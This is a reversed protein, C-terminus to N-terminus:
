EYLYSIHIYQIEQPLMRTEFNLVNGSVECVRIQIHPTCIQKLYEIEANSLSEIKGLRQWEKQISGQEESVSYTKIKYKGNKVNTLQYNLQLAQSDEYLQYLKEENLQNEKKLFYKYNLHRYNHCVISYNNNGNPVYTGANYAYFNITVNNEVGTPWSFSTWTNNNKTFSYKNDGYNMTFEKLSNMTIISGRTDMREKAEGGDASVFPTENVVVTLRREAAPPTSPADDDSSCAALTLTTLACIFINKNM